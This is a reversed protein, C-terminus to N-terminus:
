YYRGGRGRIAAMTSVPSRLEVALHTGRPLENRVEGRRGLSVLTGAGAGLAGGIVAGSGGELIAGLLAGAGAGIAVHSARVRRKGSTDAQVIDGQLAQSVGGMDLNTVVLRVAMPENGYGQRLDTIRGTVVAGEPILVEGNQARITEPVHAVFTDGPANREPSIASDLKVWLVTGPPLSAVDGSYAINSEGGPGLVVPNNRQSSACAAVMTLAAVVAFHATKRIMTDEENHPIARVLLQM